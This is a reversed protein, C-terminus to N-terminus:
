CCKIILDMIFFCIKYVLRWRGVTITKEMAM